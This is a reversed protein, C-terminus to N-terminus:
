RSGASAVDKGRAVMVPMRKEAGAGLSVADQVFVVLRMEVIDLFVRSTVGNKTLRNCRLLIMKTM